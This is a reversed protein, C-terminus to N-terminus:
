STTTRCRRARRSGPRGARTSSTSRTTSRCAPRASPWRTTPATAVQGAASAARGVGAHRPLDRGGARAPRAPGGRGDGPLRQDQLEGRQGAGAGRVPAARLRARPQPVGPQHQGPHHRGQRDRVAAAGVRRLEAGLHGVRDGAALGAAILGRALTDTEADFQRTPGGGAPRRTSSCRPTRSARRRDAAPERRHDRRAARHEIRRPQLVAHSRLVHAIGECSIVGDHGNATPTFRSARCRFVHAAEFWCPIITIIAPNSRVQGSRCTCRHTIQSM